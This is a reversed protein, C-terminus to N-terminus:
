CAGNDVRYGNEGSPAQALCSAFADAKTLADLTFKHDIGFNDTYICCFKGGPFDPDIGYKAAYENLAPAISSDTGAFPRVIDVLDHFQNLLDVFTDSPISITSAPDTAKVGGGCGCKKTQLLQLISQIDKGLQYGEM